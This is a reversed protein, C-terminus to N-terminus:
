LSRGKVLTTMGHGYFTIGLKELRPRSILSFNGGVQKNFWVVWRKLFKPDDSQMIVLNFGM